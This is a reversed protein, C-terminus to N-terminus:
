RIISPAQRKQCARAISPHRSIRNSPFRDNQESQKDDTIVAKEIRYNKEMLPANIPYEEFFNNFADSDDNGRVSHITANDIYLEIMKKIM